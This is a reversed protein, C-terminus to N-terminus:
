QSNRTPLWRRLVDVLESYTYPKPLYDDVGAALCTEKDGPMASATLALIPVNRNTTRARLGQARILRTATLGDLEPMHWDMLVADFAKDKVKKLVESGSAAVVSSCGATNLMELLLERNVENDEAVLVHADFVQFNEPQDLSEAYAGDAVVRIPLEFWFTSGTNAVSQV